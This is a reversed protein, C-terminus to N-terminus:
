PILQWLKKGTEVDFLLLNQNQGGAALLKGDPSFTVFDFFVTDIDWARIPKSRDLTWIEINRSNGASPNSRSRLGSFAFYKGNSSLVLSEVYKLNDYRINNIEAGSKLDFLKIKSDFINFRPTVIALITQEDLVVLCRAIEGIRIIRLQQGSATDWIRLTRDEHSSILREGNGSFVVSRVPVSDSWTPIEGPQYWIGHERDEYGDPTRYDRVKSWGTTEWVSFSLDNGNLHLFYKGDKSLENAKIHYVGAVTKPQPVWIIDDSSTGGLYKGSQLEWVNVGSKDNLSLVSKGDRSFYIADIRGHNAEFKRVLTRKTIDFIYIYRDSGGIALLKGDPSFAIGCIIGPHGDLFWYKGTNIDTIKISADDLDGGEAILDGHNSFAFSIGYKNIWKPKGNENIAFNGLDERHPMQKKNPTIWPIEPMAKTVALVKGTQSDWTQYLDNRSKTIITKGDESWYCELIDSDPLKGFVITGPDLTERSWIQRGSKVDWLTFHRDSLSFSALQEDNPSFQIINYEAHGIQFYPDQANSIPLLLLVSLCLFQITKM